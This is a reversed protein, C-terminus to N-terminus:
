SSYIIYRDMFIAFKIESNQSISVDCHRWLSRLSSPRLDGAECNNVWHNIWAWILSFMLTQRWQGKHPFNVPSRHIGRLFLYYHPFQKWRIVDDHFRLTPLMHNAGCYGNAATSSYWSNNHCSDCMNVHLKYCKYKCNTYYNILIIVAFHASFM